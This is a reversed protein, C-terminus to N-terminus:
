ERQYTDEVRVIDDEGLYDGRQIEIIQAPESGFNELRHVAGLEIDISQGPHMERVVADVTVTPTGKVVVWHESRKHHYQLSLRGGPAVELCKVQYGSGEYIREFMGWPRQEFKHEELKERNSGELGALLDKINEAKDRHVVLTADDTDVIVLDDTGVASILRRGAKIYTNRSDSFAANGVGSNGHRDKDSLAAVASWSGVDSWVGQYPIVAINAAAEMVAFDISDARVINMTEADLFLNEERRKSAIWVTEMASAIDPAHRAIDALATRASVLFIGANWLHKGDAILRKATDADPKEVFRDVKRAVADIASGVAIYGYGTSPQDPVIGFTVWNGASAAPAGSRVADFFAEADPLHHDAPMILVLADPEIEMARRAIAWVAAATGRGQPEYIGVAETLGTDLMARRVLFEHDRASVIITRGVGSGAAAIRAMTADLLPKEGVVPLFQKPLRKRSAPWLRTGSGGCMIAPIIIPSTSTM